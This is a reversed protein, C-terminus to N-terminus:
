GGMASTLNDQVSDLITKPDTNALNQLQSNYDNLV